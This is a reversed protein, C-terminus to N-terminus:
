SFLQKLFAKGADELNDNLSFTLSRVKIDRIDQNFSNNLDTPYVLVAEPCHKSLAYFAVQYLDDNSIHEPNKYKTDLIYKPTFDTKDYIILDTQFYINKDIVIREQTKLTLHPPLNARLWEAVFMEYLKAMNVLFPLSTNKGHEHSPISNDLFFRCLQHLTYYDNNLRHYNREICDKSTCPQLSVMGQMAHYAKRVIQSVKESCYGSHGIHFLTWFLIQNDIIDATHEQFTCQLKVDWPKKVIEQVNLRGRVSTLKKTKPLYSRYLGKRCREIIKEALIYALQNYFDEVSDCNMLGQLFNFSKLNYAYELMRFLNKIPVKPNIKLAFEHNLPIYGVWGKATLKWKNGTKPTPFDVDVEKKYKLLAIGWEESIDSKNFYKPQYETIEIIQLNTSNM